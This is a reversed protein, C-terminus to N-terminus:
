SLWKTNLISHKELCNMITSHITCIHMTTWLLSAPRYYTYYIYKYQYNCHVISGLCDHLGVFCIFESIIGECQPCRFWVDLFQKCHLLNNDGNRSKRLIDLVFPNMWVEEKIILDFTASHRQPQQMVVYYLLCKNGNVYEPHVYKSPVANLSSM